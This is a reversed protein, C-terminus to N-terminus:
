PLLGFVVMDRRAGRQLARSRLVGERRAGIAEAVGCSAVNETEVYLELRAFGVGFAWRATLAAARRAVGRRRARPAIWYGIEGLQDREQITVLGCSGLLEDDGDVVAFPAGMRLAWQEAALEGVFDSAHEHLYPAPVRTWRQIQEDQCARFVAEADAGRWPRLTVDGDALTPASEPWNLEFM